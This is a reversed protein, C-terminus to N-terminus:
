TADAQPEYAALFDAVECLGRARAKESATLGAHNRRAPDAGAQLLLTAISLGQPEDEPLVFLPTEGREGQLVGLGVPEALTLNVLSTDQVLERLRSELGGAVVSFVDRSHKALLVLTALAQTHIAWALPTARHHVDIGAVDIGM